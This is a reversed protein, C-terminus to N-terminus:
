TVEADLNDELTVDFMSFLQSLKGFTGSALFTLHQTASICTRYAGETHIRACNPMHLIHVCLGAFFLGCVGRLFTVAENMQLRNVIAQAPGHLISLSAEHVKKLYLKHTTAVLLPVRIRACYFLEISRPESSIM